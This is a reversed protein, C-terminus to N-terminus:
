HLVSESRCYEEKQTYKRREHLINEREKEKRMQNEDCKQEKEQITRYCIPSTLEQNKFFSV